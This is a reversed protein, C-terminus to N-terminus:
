DAFLGLGYFLIDEDIYIYPFLAALPIESTVDQSNRSNSGGGSTDEGPAIVDYKL